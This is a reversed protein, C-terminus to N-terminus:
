AAPAQERQHAELAKNASGYFDIEDETPTYADPATPPPEGGGTLDPLEKLLVGITTTTALQKAAMERRVDATSSYGKPKLAKGLFALAASDAKDYPTAPTALAGTGTPPRQYPAPSPGPARRAVPRDDSKPGEDPDDGTPILFQKLLAYKVASTAGKSVGKDQGDMGQSAWTFDLTEGTEGDIFRHATYVTSIAGRGGSKTTYLETEVSTISTTLFIQRSSLEKRLAASVDVDRAFDYNQERNKGHKEIHNVADMVACLKTILATM